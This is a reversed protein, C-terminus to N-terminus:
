RLTVGFDDNRYESPLYGGKPGGDDALNQGVSYISTAGAKHRSLLPRETFPDVMTVPQGERFKVAALAIRRWAEVKAIAGGALSLTPFVAKAFGSSPRSDSEWKKRFSELERCQALPDGRKTRISKMAARWWAILRAEYASEDLTPGVKKGTEHPFQGARRTSDIGFWIEGRLGYELDPLPSLKPVLESVLALVRKDDPSAEVLRALTSAVALDCACRVLLAIMTPDSGTHKAISDAIVLRRRAEDYLGRKASIRAGKCYVSVLNKLETFEPFLIESGKSWNREFRCSPKIAAEEASQFVDTLERFARIVDADTSDPAAAKLFVSNGTVKKALETLIPAANNEPAVPPPAIDEASLPLGERKAAERERSLQGAAQELDSRSMKWLLGVILLAAFGVVVM